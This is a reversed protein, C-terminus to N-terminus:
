LGLLEKKKAEYEELTIAEADLLQKFKMIEESPSNVKNQASSNATNRNDCILQFTSLAEQASDAITKYAYGSKKMKSEIFNIYVVPRSIDDMTVKLRLSSCVDKSKKRGTVGGVIAGVGGFLVGGVLARGLGGSAVSEGDELLEFDVIDDYSYIQQTKGRFASLTAWKRGSEDFAVFNGIKKTAVFSTVDKDAKQQTTKALEIKEKIDEVTSHKIEETLGIGTESVLHKSCIKIGDKITIKLLTLEKNCIPCIKQKEEGTM